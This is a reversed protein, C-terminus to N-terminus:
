KYHILKLICSMTGVVGYSKICLCGIRILMIRMLMRLRSEFLDHIIGTGTYFSFLLLRSFANSCMQRMPLNYNLVKKSTFSKGRRLHLLNQTALRYSTKYHKSLFLKRMLINKELMLLLDSFVAQIDGILNINM